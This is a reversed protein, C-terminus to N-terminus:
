NGFLNFTIGFNAGLKPSITTEGQFRYAAVNYELGGMLGIQDNLSWQLGAMTRGIMGAESGGLVAQVFPNFASQPAFSYRGGVGAWFVSPQAEHVLVRGDRRHENFTLLYSEKGGEFVFALNRHFPAHYSISATINDVSQSAEPLATTASKLEFPLAAARVGLSITPRRWEDSKEEEFTFPTPSAITGSRSEGAPPESLNEEITAPDALPSQQPTAELLETGRDTASAPQETNLPSQPADEKRSAAATVDTATGNGNPGRQRAAADTAGNKANSAVIETSGNAGVNGSLRQAPNKRGNEVVAAASRDASREVSMNNGEGITGATGTSVAPATRTEAVQPPAPNQTQAAASPGGATALRTDASDDNLIFIGSTVVAGVLMALLYGGASKLLPWLGAQTGVAGGAAGVLAAPATYGLQSFIANTSAIPVVAAEDDDRVADRLKLLYKMEFRLEDDSALARFLTEEGSSNLSSDLFDHLMESYNM